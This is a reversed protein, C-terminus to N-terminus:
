KWVFIKVNQAGRLKMVFYKIIETAIKRRPRCTDQLGSDFLCEFFHRLIELPKKKNVWLSGSEYALIEHLSEGIRPNYPRANSEYNGWLVSLLFKRIFIVM